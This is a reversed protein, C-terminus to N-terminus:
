KVGYKERKGPFLGRTRGRVDGAKEGSERGPVVGARRRQAGAGKERTNKGNEGACRGRGGRGARRGARREEPVGKGSAGAGTHPKRCAAGRGCPRRVCIGMGRERVNSRIRGSATRSAARINEMCSSLSTRRVLNRVSFPLSLIELDGCRLFFM